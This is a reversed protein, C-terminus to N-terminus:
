SKGRSRLKHLSQRIKTKQKENFTNILRREISARINQLSIFATSEHKDPIQHDLEFRTQLWNLRIRQRGWITTIEMNREHIVQLWLPPTDIDTVPSFRSPITSHPLCGAISRFKKEPKIYEILSIFPNSYLECAYLKQHSLDYRLGQTFNILEFSQKNFQKQLQAVFDIALADDNDLTTTILHTTTDLLQSRIIQLITRLDFGNIFHIQINPYSKYTEIRPLLTQPTSQDFFLLWTFSQNTQAKISPLCIKEFLSLRHTHWAEDLATDSWIKLNFRTLIFHSFSSM